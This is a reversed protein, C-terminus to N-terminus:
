KTFVFAAFFFGVLSFMASLRSADSTYPQYAEVALAYGNEVCASEMSVISSVNTINELQAQVPNCSNSNSLVCKFPEVLRCFMQMADTQAAEPSITTTAAAGGGSFAGALGSFASVLAHMITGMLNGMATPMLPCATCMCDMQTAMLDIDGPSQPDTPGNGCVATNAVMCEFAAKHACMTSFMNAYMAEYQRTIDAM